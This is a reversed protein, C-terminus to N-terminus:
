KYFHVQVVCRRQLMKTYESNNIDPDQLHGKVWIDVTYLVNTVECRKYLLLGTVSVSVHHSVRVMISLPTYELEDGYKVQL